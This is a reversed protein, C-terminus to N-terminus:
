KSKSTKIKEPFIEKNAETKNRKIIEDLFSDRPVENQNKLSSIDYQIMNISSRLKDFEHYLNSQLTNRETTVYTKIKTPIIEFILIIFAFVTFGICFYTFLESLESM